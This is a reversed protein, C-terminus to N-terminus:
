LILKDGSETTLNDGSETLIYGEVLELFIHPSLPGTGEYLPLIGLNDIRYLGINDTCRGVTADFMDIDVDDTIAVLSLSGFPIVQLDDSAEIYGSFHEEGYLRQGELTVHAQDVGISM